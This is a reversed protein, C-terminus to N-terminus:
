GPMGLVGLATSHRDEPISPDLKAAAATLSFFNTTATPPTCVAHSVWGLSGLVYDGVAYAANKSEIVRCVIFLTM